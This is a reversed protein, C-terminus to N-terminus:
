LMYFLCCNFIKSMEDLNNDALALHYFENVDYLCHVELRYKGPLVNPFLFEDSEDTLSISKREENHKGALRVLSVSVSSGCREKCTVSGLVSVLAKM